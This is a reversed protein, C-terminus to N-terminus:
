KFYTFLVYLLYINSIFQDPRLKSSHLIQLQLKAAGQHSGTPAWQPVTQLLGRAVAPLRCWRRRRWRRRGGPHRTGFGQCEPDPQSEQQGHLTALCALSPPFYPPILSSRASRSPVSLLELRWAGPLLFLVLTNTHPAFTYSPLVKCLSVAKNRSGWENWYSTYWSHHSWRVRHCGVAM